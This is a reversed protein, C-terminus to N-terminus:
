AAQVDFYMSGDRGRFAICKMLDDMM